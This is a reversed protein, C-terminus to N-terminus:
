AAKQLKQQPYTALVNANVLRLPMGVARAAEEIKDMGARWVVMPMHNNM